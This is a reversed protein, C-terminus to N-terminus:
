RALEAAAKRMAQVVRIKSAAARSSWGGLMAGKNTVFWGQIRQMEPEFDTEFVFDDPKFGAAAKVAGVGTYQGSGARGRATKSFGHREILGAAKLLAESASITSKSTTESDDSIDSLDFCM